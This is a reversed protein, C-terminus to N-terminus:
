AVESLQHIMRCDIKKMLSAPVGHFPAFYVTSDSIQGDGPQTGDGIHSSDCTIHHSVRYKMLENLIDEAETSTATTDNMSYYYEYFIGAETFSMTSVRSKIKDRQTMSVERQTIDKETIESKIVETLDIRNQETMRHHFNYHLQYDDNYWYTNERSDRATSGSDDFIIEQGFEQRITHIKVLVTNLSRIPECLRGIARATLPEDSERLIMLTQIMTNM